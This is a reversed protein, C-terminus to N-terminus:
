AGRQERLRELEATLEVERDLNPQQESAPRVDDLVEQRQGHRQGSEIFKRTGELGRLALNGNRNGVHGTLADLAIGLTLNACDRLTRM